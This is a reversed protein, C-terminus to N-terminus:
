RIFYANTYIWSVWKKADPLPFYPSVRVQVRYVGPGDIKHEVYESNYVGANVGNKIILVEFFFKPRSPLKVILTQHKNFDFETGFLIRKEKDEVYSYFGTPDGILDFSLYFNGNKLASFIKIRDNEPQGTLESKLLVHQTFMEFSRQYSPFKLLYNALPLARASAESGAYANIKRDKSIKDFLEWENEPESYLRVFSLEPNFPYTMLSWLVSVLSNKWSEGSISKPNIVEIGDLGLPLEGNWAFGKLFPHVLLVLSDKIESTKQSLLDSLKLQAEGLSNALHSNKKSFYILRSDQFSYKGGSLVLTKGFYNNFGKESNFINLDTFVLYDLGATKASNIIQNYNSSGISLNSHVNMVGKYDYWGSNSESKIQTDIVNFDYQSLYFGYVFYAILISSLISILRTM